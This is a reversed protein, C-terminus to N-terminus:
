LPAVEVYKPANLREEGHVVTGGNLDMGSGSQEDPGHLYTRLFNKERKGAAHLVIPTEVATVNLSWFPAHRSPKMNSASSDQHVSNRRNSPTFADLPTEAARSGEGRSDPGVRRGGMGGRSVWGGFPGPKYIAVEVRLVHRVTILPSVFSQFTQEKREKGEGASLPRLAKLFSSSRRLLNTLSNSLTPETASNSSLTSNWTNIRTLDYGFGNEQMDMSQEEVVQDSSSNIIDSTQPPATITRRWFWAAGAAWERSRMIEEEFEKVVGNARVRIEARVVL